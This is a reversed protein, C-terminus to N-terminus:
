PDFYNKNEFIFTYFKPIALTYKLIFISKLWLNLILQMIFPIKIYYLFSFVNYRNLDVGTSM